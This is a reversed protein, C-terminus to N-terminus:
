KECLQIINNSQDFHGDKWVNNSELILVRNEDRNQLKGEMFVPVTVM